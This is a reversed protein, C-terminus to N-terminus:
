KSREAPVSEAASESANPLNNESNNNSCGTGSIMIFIAIMIILFKNM